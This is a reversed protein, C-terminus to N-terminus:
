LVTGLIPKAWDPIRELPAHYVVRQRERHLLLLPPPLSGRAPDAEESNDYVRLSALVSILQILHARSTRYRRRITEQPIDHGGAAVRARVREIHPAESRLGVYSLHIRAGRM